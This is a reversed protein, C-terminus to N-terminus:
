AAKTYGVVTWRVGQGPLSDRCQDVDYLWQSNSTGPHM